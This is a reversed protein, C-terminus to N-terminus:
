STKWCSTQFLLDRSLVLYAPAPRPHQIASAWAPLSRLSWGAWGEKAFIGLCVSAAASRALGNSTFYSWVLNVTCGFTETNLRWLVPHRGLRVM